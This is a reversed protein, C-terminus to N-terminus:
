SNRNPTRRTRRMPWFAVGLGILLVAILLLFLFSQTLWAISPVALAMALGLFSIQLSLFSIGALFTGLALMALLVLSLAADPIMSRVHFLVMINMTVLVAAWHLIMTGLLRFRANRDDATGWRSVICLGGMAIALFEWYGVLPQRALNAYAVGAVALFLAIIYPAQRWLAQQFSVSGGEDDISVSDTM